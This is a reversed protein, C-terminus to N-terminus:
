VHIYFTTFATIWHELANFSNAILIKVSDLWVGWFCVPVSELQWTKGWGCSCQWLDPLALCKKLELLQFEDAPWASVLKFEPSLLIFLCAPKLCVVPLHREIVKLTWLTGYIRPPVSVPGSLSPSLQILTWGCLHECILSHKKSGELLSEWGLVRGSVFDLRAWMHTRTRRLCWRLWVACGREATLGKIRSM